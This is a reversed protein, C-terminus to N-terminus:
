PDPTFDIVFNAESESGNTVRVMQKQPPIPRPPRPTVTNIQLTVEYTGEGLNKILFNGRADVPTGPGDRAGERKCSVYMRADTVSTEGAFKVTGRIVGTGYDVSVRLGTMSQHVDFTANLSVGDRELRVIQVRVFSPSQTGVFVSVSGPRLGDVQFSGDPAIPSRGGNRLQAETNGGVSIMLGPLLTLLEKTSMGATVVVGSVSIGPTTKIEIGSVDKDVVEFYIPESYYNGGYIESTAYVSYQGAAFGSFSFEGRDDAQIGMGPAPPGGNKNVLAFRIGAKAISLGTEADIVRGAVSYKPTPAKVKININTAEEGARLDVIGVKAEDDPDSYFTKEYHSGRAFSDNAADYGVSVRYRGPPLGYIRYVGRDDTQYMQDYASGIAGLRPKGREDLLQLSVQENVVPKDNLTTIRGTIVSGRILRLDVDAVTENADLFISKISGYYPFYNPYASPEVIFGPTLAWVQYQGPALGNLLYRGENDTVTRAAADRRNVSQGAVAAVPIGAAAKGEIMVRGSISGVPNAKQEQATALCPLLLLLVGLFARELSVSHCPM